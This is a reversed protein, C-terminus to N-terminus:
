DHELDQRAERRGQCVESVVVLSSASLVYGQLIVHYVETLIMQIQDMVVKRSIWGGMELWGMELDNDLSEVMGLLEGGEVNEREMVRDILVVVPVCELVWIESSSRLVMAM